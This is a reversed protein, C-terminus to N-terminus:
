DTHFRRFERSFKLSLGYMFVQLGTIDFVLPPVLSASFYRIPLLVTPAFYSSLLPLYKQINRIYFSNIRNQYSCFLFHANEIGIDERSVAM